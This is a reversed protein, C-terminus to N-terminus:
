TFDVLQWNEPDQLMGQQNSMLSKQRTYRYREMRVPQAYGDVGTICNFLLMSTEEM